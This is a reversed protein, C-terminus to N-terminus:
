VLFYRGVRLLVWTGLLSSLSRASCKYSRRHFKLGNLWGYAALLRLHITFRGFACLVSLCPIRHSIVYTSMVFVTLPGAPMM